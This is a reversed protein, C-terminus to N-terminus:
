GTIFQGLKWEGSCGLVLSDWSKNGVAHFFVTCIIFRQCLGMTCNMDRQIIEEELWSLSMRQNDQGTQGWPTLPEFNLVYKNIQFNIDDHSM